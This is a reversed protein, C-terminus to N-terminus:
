GAHIPAKGKLGDQGISIASGTPTTTTVIYESNPFDSILARLLPISANVEGVSVAHVWIVPLDGSPNSNTFGLRENWRYLYDRNSLAM